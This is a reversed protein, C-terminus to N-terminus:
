ETKSGAERITIISSMHEAMAVDANRVLWPEPAGAGRLMTAAEEASVSEM